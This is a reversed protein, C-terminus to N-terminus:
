VVSKRDTFSEKGSVEFAGKCVEGPKCGGDEAPPPGCTGESGADASCLEEEAAEKKKTKKKAKEFKAFKSAVEEKKKRREEEEEQKKRARAEDAAKKRKVEEEQARQEEAEEVLKMEQATQKAREAQAAIEAPSQVLGAEAELKSTLQRAFSLLMGVKANQVSNCWHLNDPHCDQRDAAVRFGDLVPIGAQDLQQRIEANLQTINRNHPAHRPEAFAFPEMTSWILTTRTSAASGTYFWSSRETATKWVPDMSRFVDLLYETVNILPVNPRAPLATSFARIGPIPLAMVVFMKSTSCSGSEECSRRAEMWHSLRRSLKQRDDSEELRLIVNGDCLTAQGGVVGACELEFGHPMSTGCSEQRGPPHWHDLNAQGYFHPHAPNAYGRLNAGRFYAVTALFHHRMRTDGLFLFETGKLADCTRNPHIHVAQGDVALATQDCLKECWSHVKGGKMHSQMFPVTPHLPTFWRGNCLKRMEGSADFGLDEAAQAYTLPLLVRSKNGGASTRENWLRYPVTETDPAPLLLTQQAGELAGAIEVKKWAIGKPPPAVWSYDVYDPVGEPLPANPEDPDATFVEFETIVANNAPSDAGDVKLLVARARIPSFKIVIEEEGNTYVRNGIVVTELTTPQMDVIPQWHYHPYWHVAPPLMYGTHNTYWIQFATVHHDIFRGVGSLLRLRSVRYDEKFEFMAVAKDIRGHYAWGHHGTTIGDIAHGVEYGDQNFAAKAKGGNHSAAVNLFKSNLYKGFATPRSVIAQGTKPDVIPESPDHFVQAFVVSTALLLAGQLLGQARM